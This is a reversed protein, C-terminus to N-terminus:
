QASEMREFGVVWLWPDAPTTRPERKSKSARKGRREHMARFGSLFCERASRPMDKWPVSSYDGRDYVCFKTVTGDKTVARVGEALADEETIASLREVRVSRVVLTLRSAWRPMLLSPTMRVGYKRALERSDDNMDADYTVLRRRGEPDTHTTDSREGFNPPAIWCNERVWLRDGVAGFPCRVREGVGFQGFGASIGSEWLGHEPNYAWADSDDAHPTKVIRRTQTKRGDLIARVMDGRFIIPRLKM